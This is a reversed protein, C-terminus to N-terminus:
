ARSCGLGRSNNVDINEISGSFCFALIILCPYIQFLIRHLSFQLFWEYDYDIPVILLAVMYGAVIGVIPLALGLRVRAGYFCRIASLSFSIFIIFPTFYWLSSDVAVSKLKLLLLMLRESTFFLNAASFISSNVIDNSTAYLLKYLLPISLGLASIAILSLLDRFDRQIFIRIFVISSLICASILWGENKTWAAFGCILGAILISRRHQLPSFGKICILSMAATLFYLLFIDAYQLSLIFYVNPMAVFALMGLLAINRNCESLLTFYILGTAAAFMSAHLIVAYIYSAHGFYTWGRVLSMPLLLPYDAHMWKPFHESFMNVWDGNDSFFIFRAKPYWNTVADATGYPLNFSVKLAYFVAILAIVLAWYTSVKNWLGSPVTVKRSLALDDLFHSKKIILFAAFLGVIDIIWRFSGDLGLVLWFFHICSLAGLGLGYSLSLVYGFNLKSAERGLFCIFIALGVVFNILLIAVSFFYEM